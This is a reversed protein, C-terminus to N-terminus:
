HLIDHVRRNITSCFVEFLFIRAAFLQPSSSWWNYNGCSLPLPVVSAESYGRTRLGGMEAGGVESALAAVTAVPPLTETNVCNSKKFDLKSFLHKETLLDNTFFLIIIAACVQRWAIKVLRISSRLISTCPARFSCFKAQMEWGGREVRASDVAAWGACRELFVCRKTKYEPISTLRSCLRYYQSTKFVCTWKGLIVM